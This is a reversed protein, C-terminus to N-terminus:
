HRLCPKPSRCGDLHSLRKPRASPSPYRLLESVGNDASVIPFYAHGGRHESMFKKFGGKLKKAENSEFMDDGHTSENKDSVHYLGSNAAYESYLEYLYSRVRETHIFAAGDGYLQRYTYDVYEMKFRPDLVLAVTLILSCDEWYKQFKLMMTTAMRQIYLHEGDNLWELLHIHVDCVDHFYLNATVYKSGSLSTTAEYFVKLCGHVRSGVDWEESTPLNSYSKDFDALREFARRLELANFSMVRSTRENANKTISLLKQGVDEIRNHVITRRPCREYHNKLHSTGNKSCGDFVKKCHKCTAIEKGEKESKIFDEWVRSRHKVNKKKPSNPRSETNTAEIESASGVVNPSSPVSYTSQTIANSNMSPTPETM